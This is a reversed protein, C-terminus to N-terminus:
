MGQCQEVYVSLMITWFQPDRTSLMSFVAEAEPVMGCKGYLSVLMNVVFASTDVGMKRADHHLARGVELAMEKIYESADLEEALAHCAQITIGFTLENGGIGQDQMQRYLQLVKSTCGHEVYVSLMANCAVEDHVSLAIFVSEAKLVDGCKGYMSVLTNGVFVDSAFGMRQAEHHLLKGQELDPISGCAKLLSVFTYHDPEVGDDLMLQYMNLAEHALGADTYASIMSTWSFVTRRPLSASVQRALEIGGCKALTVVLYDGVVGRLDAKHHLLHAHIQMAQLLAQQLICTRLLCVYVDRTSCIRNRVLLSQLACDLKGQQCLAQIQAVFPDQPLNQSSGNLARKHKKRVLAFNGQAKSRHLKDEEDDEEEEEEARRQSIPHSWFFRRRLAAQSSCKFYFAGKPWIM